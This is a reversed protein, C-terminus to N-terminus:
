LSAPTLLMKVHQLFLSEVLLIHLLRRDALELFLMFAVVVANLTNLSLALPQGLLHRAAQGGGEELTQHPLLAAAEKRAPSLPKKHEGLYEEDGGGEKKVTTMAGSEKM